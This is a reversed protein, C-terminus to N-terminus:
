LGRPREALALTLVPSVAKRRLYDFAAKEIIVSFEM